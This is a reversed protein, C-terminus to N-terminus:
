RIDVPEVWSQVFKLADEFDIHLIDGYRAVGFRRKLDGWINSYFKSKHSEKDFSHDFELCRELRDAVRKSVADHIQKQQTTNITMQTNVIAKIENATNIAKLAHHNVKNLQQKVKQQEQLQWILIEETTQPLQQKELKEIYQTIRFRVTASEKALMQLVGAKNMKYCPQEQNRSNIYTSEAFNHLSINAKELVDIENRIDRMLVDHRKETTNGEELRFHNILQTLEVSTTEFQVDSGILVVQTNDCQLLADTMQKNM